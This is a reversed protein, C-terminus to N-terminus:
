KWSFCYIHLLTCVIFCKRRRAQMYVHFHFWYNTVAIVLDNPTSNYSILFTRERKYYPWYVQTSQQEDTISMEIPNNELANAENEDHVM